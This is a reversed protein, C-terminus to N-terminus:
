FQVPIYVTLFIVQPCHNHMTVYYKDTEFVYYKDTEFKCLAHRITACHILFLCRLDRYNQCYKSFVGLKSFEYRM